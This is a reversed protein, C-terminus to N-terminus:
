TFTEDCPDGIYTRASGSCRGKASLDTSAQEGPAYKTTYRNDPCRKNRSASRTNISSRQSTILSKLRQHMPNRLRYQKRM